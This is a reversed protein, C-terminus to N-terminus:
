PAFEDSDPNPAGGGAAAAGGAAGGAAAPSFWGKNQAYTGGAAAGAALLLAGFGIAFIELDSLTDADGASAGGEGDDDDDVGGRNEKSDDDGGSGGDDNGGDDNGGNDGDDDTVVPTSPPKTGVVPTTAPAATEGFGGTPTCWGNDVRLYTYNSLVGTHGCFTWTSESIDRGGVSFVTAADNYKGYHTPAATFSNHFDTSFLYEGDALCVPVTRHFGGLMTNKYSSRRADIAATDNSDMAASMESMLELRSDIKFHDFLNIGGANWGDGIKDELVARFGYEDAGCSRHCSEAMPCHPANESRITFFAEDVRMYNFYLKAEVIVDYGVRLASNFEFAIQYTVESTKPDTGVDLCPPAVLGCEEWTMIMVEGRATEKRCSYVLDFLKETKDTPANQLTGHWYTKRASCEYVSGVGLAENAGIIEKRCSAGECTTTDM